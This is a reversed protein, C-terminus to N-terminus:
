VSAFSFDLHVFEAKGLRLILGSINEVGVKDHQKFADKLFNCMQM